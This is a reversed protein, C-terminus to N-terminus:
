LSVQDYVKISMRECFLGIRVERQLFLGLCCSRFEHFFYLRLWSQIFYYPSLIINLYDCSLLRELVDKLFESTELISPNLMGLPWPKVETWSVFPIFSPHLLTRIVSPRVQRELVSKFSAQFRSEVRLELLRRALSVKSRLHLAREGFLCLFSPPLFAFSPSLMPSVPVEM